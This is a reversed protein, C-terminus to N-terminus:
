KKRKPSNLLVYGAGFISQIYYPKGKELTDGIKERINSIHAKITYKNTLVYPTTWAVSHLDRFTRIKGRNKVLDLLLSFETPTFHKPEGNVIVMEKEEDMIFLPHNWVTVKHPEVSFRSDEDYVDRTEETIAAVEEERDM